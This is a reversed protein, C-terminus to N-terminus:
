RPHSTAPKTGEDAPLIKFLSSQKAVQDLLVAILRQLTRQQQALFWFLLPMTLLILWLWPQGKGFWGVILSEFGFSSWFVVRALL